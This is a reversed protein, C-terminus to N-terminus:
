VKAEPDDQDLDVDPFIGSDADWRGINTEVSTISFEKGVRGGREIVLKSALAVNPVGGGRNSVLADTKGRSSLVLTQGPGAAEPRRREAPRDPPRPDTAPRAARPISTSTTFAPPAPLPGESTAVSPPEETTIPSVDERAEGNGRAVDPAYVGRENTVGGGQRAGPDVGLGADRSVVSPPQYMPPVSNGRVSSPPPWQTLVLKMGCEDCYESGDLNATGCNNCRVMRVPGGNRTM